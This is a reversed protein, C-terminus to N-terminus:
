IKDVEEEDCQEERRGKGKSPHRRSKLLRLITLNLHKKIKSFLVNDKQLRLLSIGVRRALDSM